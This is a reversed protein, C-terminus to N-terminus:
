GGCRNGEAPAYGLPCTTWGNVCSPPFAVDSNPGCCVFDKRGKCVSAEFCCLAPILDGCSMNAEPSGELQQSPCSDGQVCSGGQELCGAPPTPGCRGDPQIFSDTDCFCTGGSCAGSRCDEKTLCATAPADADADADAGSDEDRGGDSAPSPAGTDLDDSVERARAGDMGSDVSGDPRDNACGVTQVLAGATM